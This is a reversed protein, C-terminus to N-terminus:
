RAADAATVRRFHQTEAKPSPSVEALELDMTDGEATVGFTRRWVVSGRTEMEVLKPGLYWLSVKASRGGDRITCEHGFSDCDFEVVVRGGSSYTVHITNGKEQFTWVPADKGGDALIWSGMLRARDAVDDAIAPGVLLVAWLAAIRLTM